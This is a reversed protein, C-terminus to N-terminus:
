ANAGQPNSSLAELKESCQALIQAVVQNLSYGGPLRVLPKNYRDCYQRVDAFAHSSWRIALLVVAVDSRAILPEFTAVSQHEKTEIWIMELLGLASRLSEQAERRRSGGILVVSRGGLLRAAEKVSPSPVHAISPTSASPRRALFRDIERLILRFEDPLDDRDPIDDIVPLLLERIDRNSPKLGNQVLASLGSIIAQWDHDIEETAQIQAVREKIQEIELSQQRSLQGSAALAEIRSFLDPWHSPNAVDDARMFRKLYVHHRAATATLWEFVELQEPDDSVGVRKLAARLASQAETVLPLLREWAKQNDTNKELRARVLALAEALTEFCGGVDFLLSLDARDSSESSKVWYFSDTLRDAWEVMAPEPQPDAHPLDSGERIRLLREAAWRDAEAKWRCRAEIDAIEDYRTKIQPRTTLVTRQAGASPTFRGLTLERLPEDTSEDDAKGTESTTESESMREAISLTPASGPTPNAPVAEATIESDETAALIRQALARLDARLEDDETSLAILREAEAKIVKMLWDSM